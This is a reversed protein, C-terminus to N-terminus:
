VSAIRHTDIYNTVIKKICCYGQDVEAVGGPSSLRAAPIRSGTLGRPLAPRRLAHPGAPLAVGPLTRLASVWIQHKRLDYRASGGPRFIAGEGTQLDWVLLHQTTWGRGAILGREPDVVSRRSWEEATFRAVMFKGWNRPGNTAEVFKTTV